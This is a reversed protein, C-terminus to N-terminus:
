RRAQTKKKGPPRKNKKGPGKKQVVRGGTFKATAAKLKEFPLLPDRLDVLVGRPASVAIRCDGSGTVTFWGLGALTVDAAAREFGAGRIALEHRDPDGLEDLRSADFPPSLLGGAHQELYARDARKPDTPHLTLGPATFFTFFFAGRESELLEVRALAGLLVAKGPNVRLAVPKLKESSPLVAKLEDETLKAGLAHPSLLGPTDYVDPGADRLAVKVVGLTTGPTPSATVGWAKAGKFKQGGKGFGGNFAGVARNIFSSKGCNAAGCVYVDGGRRAAEDRADELLGGVGSGTRCSVLRVDDGRLNDRLFPVTARAKDFVWDRVRARSCDEPLLDFKNAALLVRRRPGVLSGMSSWCRLSGEVDFLDVFLIVVGRATRVERRLLEEFAEPTLADDDAGAGARLAAAEKAKGSAHRLGHCRSCIVDKNRAVKAEKKALRRAAALAEEDEDDDDDWDLALADLEELSLDELDDDDDDDDLAVAGGDRELRAASLLAEVEQEPSDDDDAAAAAVDLREYVSRPVYGSRTDDDCQFTAGCGPCCGAGVEIAFFPARDGGDDDDYEFRPAGALASGGAFNGSAANAAAAALRAEMDDVAGEDDDYKGDFYHDGVDIVRLGDGDSGDNILRGELADDEAFLRTQQRWLAARRAVLGFGRCHRAAGLFMLMGLM